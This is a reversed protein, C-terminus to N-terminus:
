MYSKAQKFITFANVTSFFILVTIRDGSGFHTIVSFFYHAYIPDIMNLKYSLSFTILENQPFELVPKRM